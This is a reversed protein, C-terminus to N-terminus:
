SLEAPPDAPLSAVKGSLIGSLVIGNTPISGSGGSSGSSSISSSSAPALVGSSIVPGPPNSL